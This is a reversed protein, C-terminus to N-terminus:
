PVQLKNCHGVETRKGKDRGPHWQCQKDDTQDEGCPDGDLVKHQNQWSKRSCSRAGARGWSYCRHWPLSTINRGGISVKGDHEELADSMIQRFFHQLPHTVSSMMAKSRSNNQVMRRNIGNMHVASTRVLNASINYKRMTAWLAAHWVRDFAKKQFWHLCPVSEASTPPVKWM